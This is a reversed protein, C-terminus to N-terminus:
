TFNLDILGRTLSHPMQWKVASPLSVASELPFSPDAIIPLCTESRFLASKSSDASKVVLQNASRRYNQISAQSKTQVTM